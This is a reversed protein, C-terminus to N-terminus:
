GNEWIDLRSLLEIKNSVGLKEFVNQIHKSVTRESIFLQDAISKYPKGERVLRVIEKERSTLGVTSLNIEFRQAPSIGSEELQRTMQAILDLKSLSGNGSASALKLLQDYEERSERISRRIFLITIVIFGVNTLLAEPVQHIRFFAFFPLSAWPVVALYVATVEFFRRDQIDKKYKDQISRQIIYLLVLAYGAPIVMGYNIAHDIDGDFLFNSPFIVAFPLLIFLPVGYLAHWRLRNLEFAKYFYYPFYAGMLFGMGYAIAYQVVLPPYNLNPDPFFGSAINKLILFSLLGVYYLRRKDKPHSLYFFVQYVFMILELIIFVLTVVHMDTGGIRM